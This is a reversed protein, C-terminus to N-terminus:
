TVKVPSFTSLPRSYVSHAKLTVLWVRDQVGDSWVLNYHQGLLGEQYGEFYTSDSGWIADIAEQQRILCALAEQACRQKQALFGLYHGMICASTVLILLACLTEILLFGPKSRRNHDSRPM